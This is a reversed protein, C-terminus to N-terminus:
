SFRHRRNDEMAIVVLCHMWDISLLDGGLGPRSFRHSGRDRVPSNGMANAVPTRNIGIPRAFRDYLLPEEMSHTM